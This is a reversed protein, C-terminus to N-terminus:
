PQSVEEYRDLLLRFTDHYSYRSTVHHYGARAIEEREVDNRIFHSLKEGFDRIGDYAIVHKGPEVLEYLDRSSDTLLAARCAPIELVRQNVGSRDMGGGFGWNTVNLIVKSEGYLRLLEEGRAYRGKVIKHFIPNRFNKRLWRPGCVAGNRSVSIAREIYEQRQAAWSGVFCWDYRKPADIPYYAETDVSHRLVSVNRFGRNRAKDTCAPSIFFYHDFLNVEGFIHEAEEEAEIYWGFLRSRARAKRLVEETFRQGRIMLILDPAVEDIRELLKQGRFQLHSLPHGEFLSRDKPLVRLNHSQKNIFHIFYRDFWHNIHYNFHHVEAGIKAFAKKLPDVVLFNQSCVILIRAPAM